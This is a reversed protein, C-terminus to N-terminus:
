RKGPALVIAFDDELEGKFLPHQEARRPVEDSLYRFLDFVRIVDGGSGADGRLGKLLYYTFLGNDLGPLEWSEEDPRCSAVIVRGQGEALRGYAELSLGAALRRTTDKPQGVGGSHCADLLVAVRGARLSRLASTFAETSIATTELDHLNAEVPCLYERSSTRGTQQVGHGSFFILVTDDPGTRQALAALARDIADRSAEDDVLIEVQDPPYGAYAPDTLLAYLDRADFATKQLHGLHHYAGIGVLLAHGPTFLPAAAPDTSGDATVWYATEQECEEPLYEAECVDCWLSGEANAQLVEGDEACIHITREEVMGQRVYLRLLRALAGPDIDLIDAAREPRLPQAGLDYLYRDVRRIQDSLEPHASAITDSAPYLM